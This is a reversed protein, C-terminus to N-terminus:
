ALGPIRKGTKPIVSDDIAAWLLLRAQAERPWPLARLLLAWLRDLLASARWRARSCLRAYVGPSKANATSRGIVAGSRRGEGLLLAGLYHCFTQFSPQAFVPAFSALMSAVMEPLVFPQSM